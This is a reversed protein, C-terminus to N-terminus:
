LENILSLESLASLDDTQNSTNTVKILNRNWWKNRLEIEPFLLSMRGWAIARCAACFWNIQM